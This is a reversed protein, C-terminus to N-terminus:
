VKFSHSYKKCTVYPDLCDVIWRLGVVLGVRSGMREVLALSSLPCLVLVWGMDDMVTSAVLISFKVHDETLANWSPLVNSGVISDGLLHHTMLILM